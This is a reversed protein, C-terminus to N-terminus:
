FVALLLVRKKKKKGKKIDVNLFRMLYIHIINMFNFM